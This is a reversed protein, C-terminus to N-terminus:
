AYKKKVSRICAARKRALKRRKPRAMGKRARHRQKCKAVGRKLAAKRNGSQDQGPAAPTPAPPQPTLPAPLTADEASVFFTSRATIDVTTAQLVYDGSSSDSPLTFSAQFSGQANTNAPASLTQAPGSPPQLTLRVPSSPRFNDGRVGVADGAKYASRDSTLSSAGGFGSPSCAWALAAPLVVMCALGLLAGAVGRRRVSGAIRPRGHDTAM